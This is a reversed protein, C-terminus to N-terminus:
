ESMDPPPNAIVRLNSIAHASKISEILNKEVVAGHKVESKSESNLALFINEIARKTQENPSYPNFCVTEGDREIYSYYGASFQNPKPKVKNRLFELGQSTADLLSDVLSKEINYLYADGEENIMLVKGTSFIELYSYVKVDDMTSLRKSQYEYVAFKIVPSVQAFSNKAVFIIVVLYFLKFDKLM